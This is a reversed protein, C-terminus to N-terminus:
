HVTVTICVEGVMKEAEAQSSGAVIRKDYLTRIAAAIVDVPIRRDHDVYYERINMLGFSEGLGINICQPSENRQLLVFARVILSNLALPLGYCKPVMSRHKAEWRASDIKVSETGRYNGSSYFDNFFDEVYKRIGPAAISIDPARLISLDPPHGVEAKLGSEQALFLLPDEISHKFDTDDDGSLLFDYKIPKNWKVVTKAPSTNSPVWLAAAEACQKDIQADASASFVGLAWVLLLGRSWFALPPRSAPRPFRNQSDCRGRAQTGGAPRPGYYEDGGAVGHIARRM